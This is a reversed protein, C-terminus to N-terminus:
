SENACRQLIGKPDVEKPFPLQEHSQAVKKSSFYRNGIDLTTWKGCTSGLQKLNEERINLRLMSDVRALGELADAFSPTDFGTLSVRQQLHRASASRGFEHVIPPLECQMIIGQISFVVEEKEEASPDEKVVRWARGNAGDLDVINIPDEDHAAKAYKPLSHTLYGSSNRQKALEELRQALM